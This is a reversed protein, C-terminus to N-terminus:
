WLNVYRHEKDSWVQCVLRGRKRGNDRMKTFLENAAYVSEIDNTRRTGVVNGNIDYETCVYKYDGDNSEHVRIKLKSEGKRKYRSGEVRNIVNHITPMIDWQGVGPSHPVQQSDLERDDSNYYKITPIYFNISKDWYAPYVALSMVIFSGPEKTMGTISVDWDVENKNYMGTFRNALVAKGENGLQEQVANMLMKELSKSSQDYGHEEAFKQLANM